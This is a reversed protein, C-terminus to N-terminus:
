KACPDLRRFPNAVNSRGIKDPSQIPGVFLGQPLPNLPEDTETCGALILSLALLALTKM